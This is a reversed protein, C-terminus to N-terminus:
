EMNKPVVTPNGPIHKGIYRAVLRGYVDYGGGTSYGIQLEVNKGKYFEAPTQAYGLSPPVIALLAATLGCALTGIRMNTSRGCDRNAPMHWYPAAGRKFWEYRFCM